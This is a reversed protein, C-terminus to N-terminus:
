NDNEEVYIEKLQNRYHEIQEAFLEEDLDLNELERLKNAEFRTLISKINVDYEQFKIGGNNLINKNKNMFLKLYEYILSQKSKGFSGIGAKLIGFKNVFINKWANIFEIDNIIKNYELLFTNFDIEEQDGYIDIVIQFYMVQFMQTKILEYHTDKEFQVLDKLVTNKLYTNLEKNLLVNNENGGFLYKYANSADINEHQDRQKILENKIAKIHEHRKHFLPLSCLLTILGNLYNDSFYELIKNKQNYTFKKNTMDDYSLTEDDLDSKIKSLQLNNKILYDDKENNIEGLWSDLFNKIFVISTIALEETLQDVKQEKNWEIENISINLNTNKLIESCIMRTFISNFDNEDLLINRMKSVTVANKNVDVFVQRFISTLPENSDNTGQHMDPVYLITVPIELDKFLDKEDSYGMFKEKDRETTLKGTIAQLAVLRHQGDIALLQTDRNFNFISFWRQKKEHEDVLVEVSFLNGYKKSNVKSKEKSSDEPNDIIQEDLTPYQQKITAGNGDSEINLVVVLLPPFFSLKDDRKLYPILERKIRTEDLDRQLLLDFDEIDDPKFISRLPKILDLEKINFTTQIYEISIANKTKFVGSHGKKSIDWEKEKTGFLSM